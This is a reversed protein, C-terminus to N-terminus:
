RDFDDENEYDDEDEFPTELSQFSRIMWRLVPECVAERARQM